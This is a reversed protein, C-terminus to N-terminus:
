RRRLGTASARSHSVILRGPDGLTWTERLSWYIVGRGGADVGGALRQQNSSDPPASRWRVGRTWTTRRTRRTGGWYIVQVGREAGTDPCPLSQDRDDCEYEVVQDGPLDALSLAAAPSCPIGGHSVGLPAMAAAPEATM